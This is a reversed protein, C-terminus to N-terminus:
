ILGAAVTPGTIVNATVNKLTNNRIIPYPFFSLHIGMFSPSRAQSRSRFHTPADLMVFLCQNKFCKTSLTCNLLPRPKNKTCIVFQHVSIQWACFFPITRPQPVPQSSVRKKAASTAATAKMEAIWMRTRMMMMRITMMRTMRTTRTRTRLGKLHQRRAKVEQVHKRAAAPDGM